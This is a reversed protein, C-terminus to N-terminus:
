LHRDQLATRLHSIEQERHDCTVIPLDLQPLEQQIQQRVFVTPFHNLPDPLLTLELQVVRFHHSLHPTLPFVFRGHIVLFETSCQPIIVVPIHYSLYFKRKHQACKIEYVRDTIYQLFESQQFNSWTCKRYTENEHIKKVHKM